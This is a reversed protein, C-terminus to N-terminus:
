KKSKETLPGWASSSNFGGPTVSAEWRKNLLVSLEEVTSKYNKDGAVNVNEGPDVKHDYLERGVIAGNAVRIWETYRYDETRMSHGMIKGGERPYQSLAAEKWPINNDLLLPVFSNGQLNAPGDLKCLQTLSPFIDVTEILKDSKKDIASEIWPVRVVLPINTDIEFNTHKAWGHHEGVKAAHDSWFVVITNKDLGQKKLENLIMGTLADAYSISAQYGRLIIRALSDSVMEQYKPMNAYGDIESTKNMSYELMNKPNYFNDPLRISEPPYMDWYKKPARFPLHTSSLGVAMFFPKGGKKLQKLESIAAVTSKGDAYSTDSVDAMDWAPGKATKAKPHEQQYEAIIKKSEPSLYGKGVWSGKAKITKDWIMNDEKGGSVVGGIKVTTYGNNHFVQTLTTVDPSNKHLPTQNDYVKIADPRLGTLLTLRSPNCVAQHVFCHQFTFGTQSLKDITPTHMYDAGFSGLRQAQVGDWVILLINPKDPAQTKTDKTSRVTGARQFSSLLIILSLLLLNCLYIQRAQKKIM